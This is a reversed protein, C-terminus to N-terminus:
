EMPLNFATALSPASVAQFLYPTGAVEEYLRTLSFHSLSATVVNAKQSPHIVVTLVKNNASGDDEDATLVVALHGSVWDPGRFIEAMWGQFWADATGLPCDHADNCLNPIVMGIEPLSGDAVAAHLRDAPLDFRRCAAQEKIFYPWPNHKVAYGSGGDKAMCSERMGDVYVAATKGAALAQGFVSPGSVPNASPSDDNTIGYTKGGAIAIYNPLSPHGIGRYSTAYGFRRALGFTYPMDARMQSLSHNEEIFALVKTVAGAKPTTAPLGSPSATRSVAPNAPACGGLGLALIGTLAIRRCSM